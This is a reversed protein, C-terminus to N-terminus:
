PIAPRRTRPIRVLNPKQSWPIDMESPLALSAAARRLIANIGPITREAGHTEAHPPGLLTPAALEPSTLAQLVATFSETRSLPVVLPIARDARHALLNALLGTRGPVLVPAPDGRLALKDTPYELIARGATGRVIVEGAIFDEGALTVAAMLRLGGDFTLRAFTTDDAEIDRTRYRELLMSLPLGAGAADAAALCQMLAHALPNALAGDVVPRGDVVRRGAWPARAYYSEDRRWSAVTAVATVTGLKRDAIARFLKASAASGLAQFGVQCIRGTRGVADTLEIHEDLTRVPPKELLVDSGAALADLTIPLHTHPPSAIVVVDPRVRALLERHDTFVATDPLLPPDPDLPAPEAVAVLRLAGAAQLEAISRRHWRGHGNAGILAVRVTM